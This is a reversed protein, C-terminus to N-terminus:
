TRPPAPCALRHDGEVLIAPLRCEHDARGVPDEDVVDEEDLIGPLDVVVPRVLHPRGGPVSLRFDPHALDLDSEGKPTPSVTRCDGPPVVRM